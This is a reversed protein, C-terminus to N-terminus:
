GADGTEPASHRAHAREWPGQTLRMASIVAYGSVHDWWEVRGDLRGDEIHDHYHPGGHDRGDRRHCQVIGYLITDIAASCDSDTM